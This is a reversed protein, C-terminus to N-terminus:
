KIFDENYKEKYLTSSNHNTQYGISYFILYFGDKSDIDENTLLQTKGFFEHIFTKFINPYELFNISSIYNIKKM